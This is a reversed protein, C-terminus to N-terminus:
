AGVRARERAIDRVPRVEIRSTREWPLARAIHLADKGSDAEILHFGALMGRTEPFLGDFGQTRGGRSRVTKATSAVGLQQFGLLTGEARLADADKLCDRMMSDSEGEALDGLLADDTQVLLLYRAPTEM